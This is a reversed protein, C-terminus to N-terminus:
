TAVEAQEKQQRHLDALRRNLQKMLEPTIPECWTGRITIYGECWHAFTAEVDRHHWDTASEALRVIVTRVEAERGSADPIMGGAQGLFFCEVVDVPVRVPQHLGAYILVDGSQYAVRPQWLLRWIMTLVSCALLGVAIGIAPWLWSERYLGLLMLGGTIGLMLAPVVLGLAIPRRNPRIWIEQGSSMSIPASEKLAKDALM